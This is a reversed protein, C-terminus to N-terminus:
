NESVIKQTYHAFSGKRKIRNQMKRGSGSDENVEFFVEPYQKLSEQPLKTPERNM